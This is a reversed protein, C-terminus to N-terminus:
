FHRGGGSHHSGGSSHSSFSSGGSHHSSGSSNPPNNNVPTRRVSVNLLINHYDQLVFSGVKTYEKADTAVAVSKMSKLGIILNILGAISGGIAAVIASLKLREATTKEPKPDDGSPVMPSYTQDAYQKAGLEFVKSYESIWKEIGSVYRGNVMDQYMFDDVINVTDYTVYKTADGTAETYWFGNGPEFCLYLCIGSADSGKGYGSNKWFEDIYGYETSAGHNTKEVLILIDLDYKDALRKIESEVREIESDTFIGVNDIVRKLDANIYDKAFCNISFAAILLICLIVSFVKKM